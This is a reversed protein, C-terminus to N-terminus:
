YIDYAYDVMHFVIRRYCYYGTFDHKKLLEKNKYSSSINGEYSNKEESM